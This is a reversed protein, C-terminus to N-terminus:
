EEGRCWRGTTLTRCGVSGGLHPRMNAELLASRWFRDSSSPPLLDLGIEPRMMNAVFEAALDPRVDLATVAPPAGTREQWQQAAHARAHAIAEASLEGLPVGCNDLVPALACAWSWAAAQGHADALTVVTVVDTLPALSDPRVRVYSESVLAIAKRTDRAVDQHWAAPDLDILLMTNNPLDVALDVRWSRGAACVTVDTRVSAGTAARLLAAVELELRSQGSSSCRPCGSGALARSAVTTVWEHGLACRWWCSDNAGGPTQDPARDPVTLNGVWQTALDPHTDVLSCGPKPQRRTGAWRAAACRPCSSGKSGRNVLTAEYEHGCSPCRWQCRDASNRRMKDLVVGPRALNAIFQDLLDPWTQAASVAGVPLEYRRTSRAANACQPCGRGATRNAVSAVWDHGCAGCTWRCRDRTTPLVAQLDFNPRTLNEMFESTLEPNRQAASRRGRAVAARSVGRVARACIPCRSGKCARGHVTADWYHGCAQCRWCVKRSSGVSLDGVARGPQNIIEVAELVLDPRAVALPPMPVSPPM